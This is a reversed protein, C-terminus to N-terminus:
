VCVLANYLAEDGTRWSVGELKLDLTDGENENNMMKKTLKFELLSRIQYINLRQSKNM